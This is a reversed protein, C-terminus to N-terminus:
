SNRGELNWVAAKFQRGRDEFDRFQDFSTGSPSLLVADGVWALQWAMAVAQALGPAHRVELTLGSSDARIAEEIEAAMEGFTVVARAHAGIERVMGEMPLHKSRGGAILVVPRRFSRLAAIVREPTTAISDNYFSVGGLDRVHELRHEVGAFSTAVTGIAAPPVDVARAVAAAALVNLINHDGPLKLDAVRAFTTDASTDRVALADGRRFAGAGRIAGASFWRVVGPCRAALAAAAPDDAGLVAVDTAAQYRLLNFKCERYHEFTPHRDLHNPTINLIAGVGPSQELPELQYSSLELVVWQDPTVDDIREILPAGINGGVVAARGAARLMEGVLSTTTTKGASGTIGIIPARCRQFVLEIESSVPIGRERAAVIIPLDRSAGPTAFVADADTIDDEHHGGLRLEVPLGQIQTLESALEASLKRDSFRVRAGCRILYRALAINTRALGILTVRRDRFDGPLAPPM